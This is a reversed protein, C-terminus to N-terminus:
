KRIIAYTEGEITSGPGVVYGGEGRVDIDPHGVIAGVSCRYLRKTKLYVHVGGTPTRVRFSEPLGMMDLMELSELGRKGNKCDADLVVLGQGTAVGWNCDPVESSFADITDLDSTAKRQWDKIAPVKSNPKLPFLRLGLKALAAPSPDAM